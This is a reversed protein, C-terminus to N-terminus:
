ARHNHAGSGNNQGRSPLRNEIYTKSASGPQGGIINMGNERLSSPVRQPNQMAVQSKQSANPLQLDHSGTTTSQRMSASLNSTDLGVKKHTSASGTANGNSGPGTSHHHTQQNAQKQHRYMIQVGTSSAVTQSSNGGGNGNMSSRQHVPTASSHDISSLLNSNHNAHVTGGVSENNITANSKFSSALAPPNTM